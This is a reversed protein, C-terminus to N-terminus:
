AKKGKVSVGKATKAWEEPFSVVYGVARATQYQPIIKSRMERIATKSKLDKKHDFPNKTDARCKLEAEVIKALFTVTPAIAMKLRERGNKQELFRSPDRIFELGESEKEELLERLLYHFLYPTLSYSAFGRNTMKKLEQQIVADIDTLAVVRHANVEPRSFLDAHIKADFLKYQQHCSEPTKLDFAMLIRGMETNEVVRSGEWEPHEGRAIRYHLEGKYKTHIENQLRMQVENNSQLDRGSVGNQRNTHDTIKAALESKPSISIFKTLIKLEATIDPSRAHLTSLSQCGNVVSYGSIKLSSNDKSLSITEALVTLGNHYAPFYKHETLTAISKDIEKNVASRQLRYRLNWAFLEQNAIGGMKVLESASIPAIYMTLGNEISHTLMEGSCITFSIPQSIPEAKGIPLYREQMAMEDYLIIDPAAALFDMSHKDRKKNTVFVGRPKYGERIFAAIKEDKLLKKLDESYTSEALHNVAEETKFFDLTGRLEKLCTDGLAKGGHVTFLRAQFIDIEHTLENVYIGDIGKDGKQDCIADDVESGELRYFNRLFWALFAQSETQDKMKFDGFQKLIKPYSLDITPPMIRFCTGM